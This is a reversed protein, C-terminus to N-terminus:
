NKRTALYTTLAYAGLMTAIPDLNMRFRFDAHSIYYPLPFLLLPLLFLVALRPRSRFLAILGAFALLSTLTSHLVVLGSNPAKGLGTWFCAARKLSLGLFRLPNARIAATAQESKERMYAVEGIAAYHNFEVRNINPHLSATFFGDSGVRNGQWLEYGMNSRLPIVAHMVRYNRLSWPAIIALCLTAAVLAAIRSQSGAQYGAWAVIGLLVMLLSPNVLVAFGCCAGLSLWRPWTPQQACRLGLGLIGTLMLISLSTDWYLLPLWLLPPSVSWFIGAINAARSGFARRAVLMIVVVTAVAFAMQLGMLVYASAATQVGFGRFVCSVLFPYGPALFASPGTSGGFPSSLGHGAMLSEALGSLLSHALPNHQTAQGFFWEAADRHLVLFMALLRAALALLFIPLLYVRGNEGPQVTSKV